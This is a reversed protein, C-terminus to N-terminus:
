QEGELFTKIQENINEISNQINRYLQQLTLNNEKYALIDKRHQMYFGIHKSPTTNANSFIESIKNQIKEDIAYQEQLSCNKRLCELREKAGKLTIKMSEIDLRYYTPIDIAISYITLGIIFFIIKQM